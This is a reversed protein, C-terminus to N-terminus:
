KKHSTKMIKRYRPTPLITGDTLISSAAQDRSELFNFLDVVLHNQERGIRLKIRERMESINMEKMKKKGSEMILNYVLNNLKAKRVKGFKQGGVTIEVEEENDEEERTQTVGDADNGTNSEEDHLDNEFLEEDEDDQLGLQRDGDLFDPCENEDYLGVDVAEDAAARETATNSSNNSAKAAKNRSVVDTALRAAAEDMECESDISVDEM